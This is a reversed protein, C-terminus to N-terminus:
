QFQEIIFDKTLITGNENTFIVSVNWNAEFTVGALIIKFGLTKVKKIMEVQNASFSYNFPKLVNQSTRSKVEIVYGKLDKVWKENNFFKNLGQEYEFYKLLIEQTSHPFRTDKFIPGLGFFDMTQQYTRLFTFKNSNLQLSKLTELAKAPRMVIIPFNKTLIYHVLEEAILGRLVTNKGTEINYSWM